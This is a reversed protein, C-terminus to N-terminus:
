AAFMCVDLLNCVSPDLLIEKDTPLDFLRPHSFIYFQSSVLSWDYLSAIVLRDGSIGCRRAESV